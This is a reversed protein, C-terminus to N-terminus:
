LEKVKNIFGGITYQHKKKDRIYNNYWNQYYEKDFRPPVPIEYGDIPTIEKFFDNPNCGALTLLETIEDHMDLEYNVQGDNLSELYKRLKLEEQPTLNNM